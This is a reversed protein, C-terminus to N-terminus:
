FLSRKFDNTAAIKIASLNKNNAEEEEKFLRSKFCVSAIKRLKFIFTKKMQFRQFIFSRKRKCAEYSVSFHHYVMKEKEECRACGGM